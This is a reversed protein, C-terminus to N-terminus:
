SEGVDTDVFIIDMENHFFIKKEEFNRHLILPHNNRMHFKIFDEKM